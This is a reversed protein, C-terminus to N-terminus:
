EDDSIFLVGQAPLDAELLVTGTGSTWAEGQKLCIIRVLSADLGGQTVLEEALSTVHKVSITDRIVWVFDYTAM